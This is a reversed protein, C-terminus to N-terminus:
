HSIEANEAKWADSDKLEDGTPNNGVPTFTPVIRKVLEIINDSNKYAADALRELQEFFARVNFPVPKGIYILDNDTKKFSLM